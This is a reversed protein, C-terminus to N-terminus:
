LRGGKDGVEDRQATMGKISDGIRRADMAARLVLGEVLLMHVLGKRVRAGSSRSELSRVM